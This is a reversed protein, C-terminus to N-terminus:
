LRPLLAAALKEEDALSPPAGAPAVAIRLYADGKLVSLSAYGDFYAQDGYGSIARANVKSRYDKYWALAHAGKVVVVRVSDPQAVNPDHHGPSSPGYFVCALGGEVTAHGLVGPSVAQGIASAAEARTVVSCSDFKGGSSTSAAPAAAGTTPQATSLASTALPASSAASSTSPASSGGCGALLIAAVVAAAGGGARM